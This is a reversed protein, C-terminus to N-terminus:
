YHKLAIIFVNKQCCVETKKIYDSILNDTYFPSTEVYKIRWKAGRETKLVKDHKKLIKRFGTFNLEQQFIRWNFSFEFSM